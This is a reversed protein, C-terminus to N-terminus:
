PSRVEIAMNNFGLKNGDHHQPARVEIAMNDRLLGLGTASRSSIKESQKTSSFCVVAVLSTPDHGTKRKL